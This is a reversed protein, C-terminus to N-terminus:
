KLYAKVLNLSSFQKQTLEALPNEAGFLEQRVEIPSLGEGSLETVRQGLDELYRVTEELVAAPEAIVNTTAPFLVRPSLDRV